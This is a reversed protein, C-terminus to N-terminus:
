LGKCHSVQRVVEGLLIDVGRSETDWVGAELFLKEKGRQRWEGPSRTPQVYDQEEM